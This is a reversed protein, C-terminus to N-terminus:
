PAPAARAHYVRDADAAVADGEMTFLEYGADTLLSRSEWTGDDHFEIILQPRQVGLVNQMGAFVLGEAGEVDIKVLDLPRDAFYSDLTVTPVSGFAPSQNGSVDHGRLNWESPLGPRGEHLTAEGDHDAVAVHEVHVNAYGDDALKATLERATAAHPEFAVVRGTDGVLM